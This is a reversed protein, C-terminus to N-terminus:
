LCVDVSVPCHGSPQRERLVSGDAQRVLHVIARGVAWLRLAEPVGQQCVFIHDQPSPQEMSRKRPDTGSGFFTGSIDAGSSDIFRRTVHTTCSGPVTLIELMKLGHEGGSSNFDGMIVVPETGRSISHCQTM